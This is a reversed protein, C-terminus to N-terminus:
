SIRVRRWNSRPFQEPGDWKHGTASGIRVMEESGEDKPTVVLAVLYQSEVAGILPILYYKGGDKIKDRKDSAWWLDEVSDSCVFRGTDEFSAPIMTCNLDVFGTTVPGTASPGRLACHVNLVEAQAHLDEYTGSTETLLNMWGYSVPVDLSAWSWTPATWVQNEAQVPTGDAVAIWCMDTIFSNEWLGAWYRQGTERQFRDALGSLAPLKDARFSLQLHSYQRVMRRWQTSIVDAPFERIRAFDEKRAESKSYLAGFNQFEAGGCECTRDHQCDWLLEQSGFYLIRPALMREQFVWGRTLLPFDPHLEIDADQPFHNMGYTMVPGIRIGNKPTNFCGSYVSDASLAAITLFSNCYIDAMRVSERNWDAGDDGRQIICLADVWIYQIGLEQCFTIADQLTQPLSQKPIGRKHSELTETTTM